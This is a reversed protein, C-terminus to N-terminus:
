GNPKKVALMMKTGKGKLYIQFDPLTYRATTNVVATTAVRYTRPM